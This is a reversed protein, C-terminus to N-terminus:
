QLNKLIDRLIRRLTTQDEQSIASATKREMEKWVSSVNCMAEKGKSTLFIRSVRMDNNDKVKKVLENAELRDLMRVMTAQQICVNDALSSITQGDEKGLYSLLVDQGAHIGYQALMENAKNRWIKCVQILLYNVSNNQSM